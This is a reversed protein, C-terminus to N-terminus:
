VVSKRDQLPGLKGLSPISDSASMALIRAHEKADVLNTGPGETALNLQRQGSMSIALDSHAANAILTDLDRSGLGHQWADLVCEFGTCGMASSAHFVLSELDDIRGLERLCRARVRDWEARTWSDGFACTEGSSSASFLEFAEKWERRQYAIWAFATRGLTGGWGGSEDALHGARLADEHRGNHELVEAIRAFQWDFFLVPPKAGSLAKCIADLAESPCGASDRVFSFEATAANEPWGHRRLHERLAEASHDDVANLLRDEETEAIVREITKVVERWSGDSWSCRGDVTLSQARASISTVLALSVFIALKRMNLGRDALVRRRRESRKRGFM